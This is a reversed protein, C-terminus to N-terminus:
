VKNMRDHIRKDIWERFETSCALVDEKYRVLLSSFNSRQPMALYMELLHRAGIILSNKPGYFHFGEKDCQIESTNTFYYHICTQGLYEIENIVECIDHQPYCPFHGQLYYHLYYYPIIYVSICTVICSPFFPQLQRKLKHKRRRLERHLLRCQSGVSNESM